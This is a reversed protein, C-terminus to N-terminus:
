QDVAVFEGVARVFAEMQPRSGITIRIHDSIRAKNWHRVLVGKERLSSYLEHADFRPHKAFLFNAKSDTMEFGFGKLLDKTQEKDINLKESLESTNWADKSLVEDILRM